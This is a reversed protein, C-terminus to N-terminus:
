SALVALFLLLLKQAACASAPSLPCSFLYLSHTTWVAYTLSTLVHLRRARHCVYVSLCMCGHLRQTQADRCGLAECRLARQARKRSALPRGFLRALYSQGRDTQRCRQQRMRRAVGGLRALPCTTHTGQCGPLGAHRGVGHDAHGQAGHARGAEPGGAGEQPSACRHKLEQWSCSKLSRIWWREGASPRALPGCTLDM